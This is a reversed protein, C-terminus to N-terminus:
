RYQAPPPWGNRPGYGLCLSRHHTWRSPCGSRWFELDSKLAHTDVLTRVREPPIGGISKLYTAMVQADRAAYKVRAIGSERFQGVGIVIGVAKPQKLIAARKPLHDVDIPVSVAETASEPKMAM